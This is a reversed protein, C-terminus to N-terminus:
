PCHTWRHGYCTFILTTGVLHSAYSLVRWDWILKSLCLSLMLRLFVSLYFFFFDCVLIVWLYLHWLGVCFALIFNFFFLIHFFILMVACYFETIYNWYIRGLLYYASVFEWTPLMLVGRARSLFFSWGAVPLVNVLVPFCPSTVM